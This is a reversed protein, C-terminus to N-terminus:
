QWADSPKPNGDQGLQVARDEARNIYVGPAVHGKTCHVCAGARVCDNTTPPNRTPPQPSIRTACLTVLPSVAARLLDSWVRFGSSFGLGEVRLWCPAHPTGSLALVFDLSSPVFVFAKFCTGLRFWRRALRPLCGAFARAHHVCEAYMAWLARLSAIPAHVLMRSRELVRAPMYRSVRAGSGSCGRRARFVDCAMCCPPTICIAVM